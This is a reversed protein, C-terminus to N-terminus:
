FVQKVKKFYYQKRIHERYADQWEQLLPKLGADMRARDIESYMAIYIETQEDYFRETDAHMKDRCEQTIALKDKYFRPLRYSFGRYHVTPKPNEEFRRIRTPTVFQYGIGGRRSMLRFPPTVKADRLAPPMIYGTLYNAVYAIRRPSVEDVTIFGKQWAKEIDRDFHPYTPANFLLMHYHPRHTNGGYEGVLFYRLPTDWHLREKVRKRLRKLFLQVDRKCLTRVNNTFVVNEENYTLTIFLTNISYANEVTLRFIWDKASNQACVPCKGCPFQQVRPLGTAPDIDQPITRVYPHFCNLKM